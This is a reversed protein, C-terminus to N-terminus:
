PGGASTGPARFRVLSSPSASWGVHYVDADPSWVGWELDPPQYPLPAQGILELGGEYLSMGAIGFDGLFLQGEDDIFVNRPTIDGHCISRQTCSPSFRM